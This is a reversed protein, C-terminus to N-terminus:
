RTGGRAAGPLAEIRTRCLGGPTLYVRLKKRGRVEYLPLLPNLAVFMKRRLLYATDALGKIEEVIKQENEVYEFDATYNIRVGGARFIVFSPQRVLFRIAGGRELMRLESWRAAEAKSGFEIGDVTTRKAKTRAISQGKSM